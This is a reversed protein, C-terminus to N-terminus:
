FFGTPGPSWPVEVSDGVHPLDLPALRGDMWVLLRLEPDELSTHFRVQISTPHNGNNSLVTVRADDLEVSDGSRLPADDSRFLGEFSGYLMGPRITIVLTRSDIREIRHTARAMSLICWASATGPASVARAAGVYISALPDSAAVIFVRPPRGPFTGEGAIVGDLSAAIAGTREGMKALMGANGVFLFPSLVVHLAFFLLACTRRAYFSPSRRSSDDLKRWGYVIITALVVYGGIGPVLLLRSGPFAGATTLISLGAGLSLWRLARRTPPPVDKWISRLLAAVGLAVLLGAIAFPLPPLATTLGSPVEAFLDGLMVPVRQATAILFKQPEGLPDLYSASHAVGYGFGKYALVYALMIGLPISVRRLRTSWVGQEPAGVAEYAIWYLAAGLASEGGLLGVALGVISLWRGAQLGRERYQVHLALGGVSPATAVLLHRCSLWGVPQAHSASLAFLLFSWQWLPPSLVSRLLFGVALLLLMYWGLAHLHYGTAFGAFVAHDLAFLASSLPRFFRV